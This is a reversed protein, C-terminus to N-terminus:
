PMQDSVNLGMERAKDFDIAYDHTWRGQRLM